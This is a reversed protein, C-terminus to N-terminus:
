LFCAKLFLTNNKTMMLSPLYYTQLFLTIKGKTFLLNLCVKFSSLFSESYLFYGFFFSCFQELSYSCWLSSSTFMKLALLLPKEM